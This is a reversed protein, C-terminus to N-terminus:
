RGDRRITRRARDWAELGKVIFLREGPRVYGLRRAERVLAADTASTALKRELARRQAQLARVDAERKVLTRHTQVYTRVPRYYLLAILCVAGVGLWRRFLV